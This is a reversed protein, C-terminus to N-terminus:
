FKTRNWTARPENDIGLDDGLRDLTPIAWALEGSLPVSSM